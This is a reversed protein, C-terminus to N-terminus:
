NVYKDVYTESHKDGDESTELFIFCLLLFMKRFYLSNKGLSVVNSM